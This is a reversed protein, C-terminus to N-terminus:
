KLNLYQLDEETLQALIAEGDPHPLEGITPNNFAMIADKTTTPSMTKYEAQSIEGAELKAKLIEEQEQRKEQAAEAEQQAKQNAFNLRDSDSYRLMKYQNMNMMSRLYM